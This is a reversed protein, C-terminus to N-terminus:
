EITEVPKRTGDTTGIRNLANTLMALSQFYTQRSLIQYAETKNSNNRSLQHVEGDSPKMSTVWFCVDDPLAM